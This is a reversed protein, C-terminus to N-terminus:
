MEKTPVETWSSAANNVIAGEEKPPKPPSDDWMPSTNEETPAMQRSKWSVMPGITTRFSPKIRAKRMPISPQAADLAAIGYMGWSSGSDRPKELSAHNSPKVKASDTFDHM